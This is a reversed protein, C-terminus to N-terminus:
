DLPRVRPLDLAYGDRVRRIEASAINTWGYKLDTYNHTVGISDYLDAISAQGYQDIIASLQDIVAQAEGYNSVTVEKYDYVSHPKFRDDAPASQKSYRNTYDIYSIKDGRYSKGSRRTGGFLFIDLCNTFINWIGEKIGPILVDHIAYSKVKSMDEAMFNDALKRIESKKKLKVEGSIVKEVKKREESM